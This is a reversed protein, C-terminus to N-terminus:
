CEIGNQHQSSVFDKGYSRGFGVLDEYPREETCGKEKM